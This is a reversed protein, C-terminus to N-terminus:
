KLRTSVQAVSSKKKIKTVTKPESAGREQPTGWPDM